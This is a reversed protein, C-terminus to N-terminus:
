VAMVSTRQFQMNIVLGGRQEGKMGGQGENARERKVCEHVSIIEVEILGGRM